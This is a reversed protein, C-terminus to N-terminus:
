FTLLTLISSYLLYFRNAWCVAIGTYVLVFAGVLAYGFRSRDHTEQEQLSSVAAAILFPQAFTFCSLTIRPIVGSFFSWINARFAARLLRHRGRTKNWSAELKTWTSEGELEPGIIPIDSLTLNKVYGLKLFPLVWLFLGRSWFGVISESSLDKYPQSLFKRKQSSEIATIAITLVFITTWIGKPADTLSHMLWLSRLRPLSLLSCASFYLVLIDSPRTSRQDELFSLVGATFVAVTALVASALGLKTRLLPTQLILISYALHLGFLIALLTKSVLLPTLRPILRM